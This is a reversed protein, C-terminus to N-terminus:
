FLKILAAVCNSSSLFDDSPTNYTIERLVGCLLSMEGVEYEIFCLFQVKHDFPHCGQEYAPPGPKLYQGQSGILYSTIQGELEGPLIDPYCCVFV